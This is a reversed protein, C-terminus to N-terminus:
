EEGKGLTSKAAFALEIARLAETPTQLDISPQKKTLSELFSILMGRYPLDPSVAECQYLSKLRSQTMHQVTCSEPNSGESKWVLTGREGVIEWGRMKHRRLLDLHISSRVGGPFSLTFVSYDECDSVESGLRAATGTVFAGLGFLWQQLDIEHICDLIAGGGALGNAAYSGAKSRGSGMQSLRHGFHASAFFIRGLARVNERITAPGPHFRMNCVVYLPVRTNTAAALIARASKLDHAIPKEVLVPYGSFLAKEVCSLHANPPTAVIIGNPRASFLSDLSTKARAGTVAAVAQSQEINVDHVLVRVGPMASLLQAYRTGISGCGVVGILM